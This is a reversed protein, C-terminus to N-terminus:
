KYAIIEENNLGAIQIIVINKLLKKPFSFQTANLFRFNEIYLPSKKLSGGFSANLSRAAGFIRAKTTAIIDRKEGEFIKGSM